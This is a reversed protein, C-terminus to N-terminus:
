PEIAMGSVVAGGAITGLRTARGTDLNVRYLVSATGGPPTLAAYAANRVDSIDFAAQDFAGAELPGVTFLRGTNPSIAPLVGERSGQMVLTGQRADIAYNTTIKENDQNYTYGAAVIAPTRGANRDAADYALAGDTQLGEAAPNADVVAGTEPHLRLNQGADTVVRIRDVTPNFDFGASGAALKVALPQGVPRATATAADVRYLRGSSGLAFLEGRAVRYDLGIVAEQPQLGQLAADSLLKQPQGGNFSVLRNAATVAYLKEPAPPGLPESPLTSCAALLAAGFMHSTGLNIYKM